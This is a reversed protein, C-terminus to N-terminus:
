GYLNGSRNSAVNAWVGEVALVAHKYWLVAVAKELNPGRGSLSYGVNLCDDEVGTITAIICSHAKDPSLSVKYGHSHFYELVGVFDDPLLSEAALKEKDSESLVIDAFGQWEIRQKSTAPRANQRGNKREKEVGM